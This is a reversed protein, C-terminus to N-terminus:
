SRSWLLYERVCFSAQIAYIYASQNFMHTPVASDIKLFKHSVDAM